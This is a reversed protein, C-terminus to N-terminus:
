DSAMVTLIAYFMLAARVLVYYVFHTTVSINVTQAISVAAPVAYIAMWFVWDPDNHQVYAALTFFVAMSLSLARITASM